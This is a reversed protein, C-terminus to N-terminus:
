QNLVIYCLVCRNRMWSTLSRRFCWGAAHSDRAPSLSILYGALWGLRGTAALAVGLRRKFPSVIGIFTNRDVNSRHRKLVAEPPNSALVSQTLSWKEQSYSLHSMLSTCTLSLSPSLPELCGHLIIFVKSVRQKKRQPGLSALGAQVARTSCCREFEFEMLWNCFFFSFQVLPQWSCALVLTFLCM